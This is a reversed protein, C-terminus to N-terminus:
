RDDHQRHAMLLQCRRNKGRVFYVILKYEIDVAVANGTHGPRCRSVSLWSDRAFCENIIIVETRRVRGYERQVRCNAALSGARVSLRHDFISFNQNFKWRFDVANRLWCSSVPIGFPQPLTAPHWFKGFINPLKSWRFHISLLLTASAPPSFSFISVSSQISFSDVSFWPCVSFLPVCPAFPDGHAVM